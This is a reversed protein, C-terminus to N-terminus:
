RVLKYIVFAAIGLSGLVLITGLGQPAKATPIQVQVGGPLNWGPAAGPSTGPTSVHAPATVSVPTSVSTPAAAPVPAASAPPAPMTGRNTTVSTLQGANDYNYQVPGSVLVSPDAKAGSMVPGSARPRSPTSATATKSVNRNIKGSSDRGPISPVPVGKGGPTAQYVGKVVTKNTFPQIFAKPERGGLPAFIYSM